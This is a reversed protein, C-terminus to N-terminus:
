RKFIPMHYELSMDNIVKNLYNKDWSTLLNLLTDKSCNNVNALKFLSVLDNKSIKSYPSDVVVIFANFIESRNVFNSTVFNLIQSKMNDDCGLLVLSGIRYICRSEYEYREKPTIGGKQVDNIFERKIKEFVDQMYNPNQEFYEKIKATAINNKAKEEDWKLKIQMIARDIVRRTGPRAQKTQVMNKLTTFLETACESGVDRAQKEKRSTYYFFFPTIGLIEKPMLKENGVCHIFPFENPLATGIEKKESVKDQYIHTLEHYLTVVMRYFTLQELLNFNLTITKNTASSVGLDTGLNDALVLKCDECGFQKKAIDFLEIIFKKYTDNSFADGNNLIDFCKEYEEKSANNWFKDM